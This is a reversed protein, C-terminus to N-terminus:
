TKNEQASNNLLPIISDVPYIKICHIAGPDSILKKM